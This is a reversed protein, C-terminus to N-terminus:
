GRERCREGWSLGTIPNALIATFGIKRCEMQAPVALVALFV